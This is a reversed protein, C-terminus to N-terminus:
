DDDDNFVRKTGQFQVNQEKLKAQHKAQWSPHLQEPAQKTPQQKSYPKRATVHQGLHKAKDGFKAEALARRAKQGMRNKKVKEPPNRTKKKETERHSLSDVFYVDQVNSDADSEDAEEESDDDIVSDKVTKEAVPQRRTAEDKEHLLRKLFSELDTTLEHLINTVKKQALLYENVPECKEAPRIGFTTFVKSLFPSSTKIIKQEFVREAEVSHSMAKVSKLKADLDARKLINNDQETGESSEKIQKIIKQVMFTKVKKLQRTLEKRLWFLKQNIKQLRLSHLESEMEERTMAEFKRRMKPNKVADQTWQILPTIGLLSELFAIQVELNGEAVKVKGM